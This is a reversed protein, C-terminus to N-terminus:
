RALRHVACTVAAVTNDMLTREIGTPARTFPVSTARRVLVVNMPGPPTPALEAALSKRVQRNEEGSTVTTVV